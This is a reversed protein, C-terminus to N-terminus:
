AEMEWEKRIDVDIKNINKLAEELYFKSDESLHPNLTSKLIEEAKNAEGENIITQIRDEGIEDILPEAKGTRILSLVDSTLSDMLMVLMPSKMWFNSLVRYEVGYDTPRHCGAKGYLKRREIASASNDLITSIVGHFLDMMKVTIIKGPIELLFDNGDGEIHGVHLHAGCSRFTSTAAEPPPDNMMMTWANYDPSCGFAQAEEHDLQDEDFNASPVAVIDHEPSLTQFIDKFANRVKTVLDKGDKAPDTAFELAVNDRQVNGGSPLPQPEYKTGEVFPIASLFKGTKKDIMFFEPDTGITFRKEKKM